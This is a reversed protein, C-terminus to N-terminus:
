HDGAGVQTAAVSWILGIAIVVVEGTDDWLVQVRDTDSPYGTVIGTAEGSRLSVAASSPIRTRLSEREGRQVSGM